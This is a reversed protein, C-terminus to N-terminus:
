ETLWLQVQNRLRTMVRSRAVYVQAERIKLEQAVDAISRQLVATQHFAQWTTESVRSRVISAAWQFIERKQELAWLTGSDSPAPVQELWRRVQTDGSGLTQKRSAEISDIWKHKAIQTLWARFSGSPRQPQYNEISRAVGVFVNQVLDHADEAQMGWRHALRLLMPRYIAQFQEWAQSDDASQLRGILSQHTDSTM